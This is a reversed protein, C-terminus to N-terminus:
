HDVGLNSSTHTDTASIRMDKWKIQSPTSLCLLSSGAQVGDGDGSGKLVFLRLEERADRKRRWSRLFGENKKKKNIKKAVQGFM